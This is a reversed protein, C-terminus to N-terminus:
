WLADVDHSIFAYVDISIAGVHSVYVVTLKLVRSRHWWLTQGVPTTVSSHMLGPGHADPSIEPVRM